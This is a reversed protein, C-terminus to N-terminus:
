KKIRRSRFHKVTELFSITTYDAKFIGLMSPQLCLKSSDINELYFGTVEDFKPTDTFTVSAPSSSTSSSSSIQNLILSSGPKLVVSFNKNSYKLFPALTIM